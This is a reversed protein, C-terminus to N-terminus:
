AVCEQFFRLKASYELPDKKVVQADDPTNLWDYTRTLLFRLAAGRLLIPMAMNEEDNMPRIDNYAAMLAQVREPVFRHRDDFCWANVCVAMDYAWMEHCAFYFDIVGSLKFSGRDRVFFVNDPFLDAHVPGSPLGNPWSEELFNYEERILAALGPEIRDASDGIRLVLQQWGALSLANDRRHPFEMGAIHMNAVLQGLQPLHEMRIGGVGGGKLFTVLLAPKEKLAGLVGGDIREVPLPCPIGRSVFWQMLHVFYPLDDLKTRQEFLTLIYRGSETEVLYNSNEIGETIGTASRFAGIDYRAIFDAIEAESLATYVAM